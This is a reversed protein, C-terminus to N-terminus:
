EFLYELMKKGLDSEAIEVANAEEIAEIVAKRLNSLRVEMKAREAITIEGSFKQKTYKGVNTPRELIQTIPPRPHPSKDIMPDDVIVTNKLTTKIFGEDLRSEWINRDKFDPHDTPTWIESGSRIPLGQVLSRLGSDLIKKLRLLECSTYEGWDNGEVVLRAKVLGSGNTKEISFVNALYELSHTTLWGLQEMVTAEIATFKRHEPMDPFGELAVFTNQVGQFLGQKNKFKSGMDALMAQWEKEQTERLGLSTSLKRKSM